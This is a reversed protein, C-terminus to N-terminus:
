FEGRGFYARLNVEFDWPLLQRRVEVDPYMWILIPEDEFARALMLALRPVDAETAAEVKWTSAEAGPEAEPLRQPEM